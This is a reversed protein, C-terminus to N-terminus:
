KRYPNSTKFADKVQLRSNAGIYSNSQIKNTDQLDECLPDFRSITIGAFINCSKNIRTYEPILGVSCDKLENEYKTQKCHHCNCPLGGNCQSCDECNALKSPDFKGEPCRTLPRNQNRLESETDVKSSPISYFSKHMTASQKAFCSTNSEYVPDTMYNFQSTQEQTKKVLNCTDYLSNTFSFHAKNINTM